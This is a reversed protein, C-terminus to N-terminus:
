SDLLQHLEVVSDPDPEFGMPKNWARGMDLGKKTHKLVIKDNATNALNETLFRATVERLSRNIMLLTDSGNSPNEMAETSVEITAALSCNDANGPASLLEKGLALQEALDTRVYSHYIPLHQRVINLTALALHLQEQALQNNKDVAPAVNDTVSKIVSLLQTDIDPIM